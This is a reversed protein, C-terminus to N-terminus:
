RKQWTVETNGKHQMIRLIKPEDEGCQECWLQIEIVDRRGAIKSSELRSVEVGKRSCFAATGDGDESDRMIVNVSMQHTYNNGCDPCLLEDNANIKIM